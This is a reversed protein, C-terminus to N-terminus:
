APPPPSDSAESRLLALAERAAAEEASKKSTGRGTGLQRNFLFVAVEYTRAHDEGETRVIEYRLANNGHRPQVLEQLSGKPNELSEGLALRAVLPGYIRLVVRRAEEFGGDLYVAAVLAEFADELNSERTRGGTSEESAGLRLMADLGIERALRALFAGNALAARNRSLRGERDEPYLAFLAETLVLQLVADGLFELRENSQIIDPRDQLLSSHTLACALLARDRFEHDLRGELQALPDNM